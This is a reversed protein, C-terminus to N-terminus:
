FSAIYVYSNFRAEHLKKWDRSNSLLSRLFYSAAENGQREAVSIEYLPAYLKRCPYGFVKECLRSMSKDEGGLSAAETMTRVLNSMSRVYGVAPMCTIKLPWLVM